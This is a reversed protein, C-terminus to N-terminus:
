RLRIATVSVGIGYSYVNNITLTDGSTSFTVLPLKQEVILLVKTPDGVDKITLTGSSGGVVYLAGNFALNAVRTQPNIIETVGDPGYVVLGYEADSGSAVYTPGTGSGGSLTRTYTSTRTSTRSYYQTFNGAFDGTYNGTYNGTFSNSSAGAFDGIYSTTYLGTYNGLFERTYGGTYSSIYDGIFTRTYDVTGSSTNVRSLSYYEYRSTGSKYVERYYTYDGVTVSTGSFVQNFVTVGNWIIQVIEDDDTDIRWHYNNIDYQVNSSYSANRSYTSERNLTFNIDRSRFYEKTYNGVFTSEGTGIYNGVYSTITPEKAPGTISTRMRTYDNEDFVISTRTYNGSYSSVRVGIYDKSYDTSRTKTFERTYDGVFNLVRTFSLTYDAM